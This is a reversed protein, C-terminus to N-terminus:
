LIGTIDGINYCYVSAMDKCSRDDLFKKCESINRENGNCLVNVSMKFLRKAIIGDDPKVGYGYGLFRYFVCIVSSVNDTCNCTTKSWM